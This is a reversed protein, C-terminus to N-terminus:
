DETPALQLMRKHPQGPRLTVRQSLEVQLEPNKLTITHRGCPVAHDRLPTRQGTNRGDIWVQAWPRSELTVSCARSVPEPPPSPMTLPPLDATFPHAGLAFM